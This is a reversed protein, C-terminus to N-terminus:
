CPFRDISGPWCNSPSLVRLRAAALELALPLGDLRRCIAAIATVNALTIHFSPTSAQAREVFLQVASSLSIEDLDPLPTLEPVTLPGVPYEREGRLRLPARSTVLVTLDPNSEILAVVEQAAYLLHEFNDLILFMRREQFYGRLAVAENGRALGTIGLRSAIRSLLLSPDVLSELPVVVVGDPFTETTQHSAELALSTKGVGGPGTLTVLRARHGHLLARVEVLAKERGILPAPSTRLVRLPDSQVHSSDTGAVSNMSLLDARGDKPLELAAVLARVTQPYPRQRRGREIAAVGRATLGARAALEEQTLGAKKRQNRLWAGFASPEAAKM